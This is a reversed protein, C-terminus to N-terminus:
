QGARVNERIRDQEDFTGGLETTKAPVVMLFANPAATFTLQKRHVIEGDLSLLATPGNPAVTIRECSFCSLVREIGPINMHTGRMYSPLLRLFYTRSINHILNVNLKGDHVSAQPNSQIGGGCFKGNAISTLLLPGNHVPEGDATICLDTGKKKILTGFISLFYAMPGSILPKQKMTATMAAVNSDFGINIMNLCYFPAADETTIRIADCPVAKGTIQALVDNFDGADPFNRCFDNGTGIPLVGMECESHGIIGNLVEGATGDGGCAIFRTPPNDRCYASVFRTADKAATTTYVDVDYELRIKADHIASYLKNLGKGQGAKPNVVFLTKM